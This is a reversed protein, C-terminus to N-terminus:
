YDTVGEARLDMLIPFLEAERDRPDARFETGQEFVRALPSDRYAPTSEFGFDVSGMEVEAGQRWIFSRGAIDPHLTRVFVGVRWLPVGLGVLRECCESMMQGPTAASRAGDVLWDKIEQLKLIDM